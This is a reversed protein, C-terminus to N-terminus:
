AAVNRGTDFNELDPWFDAGAGLTAPGIGPVTRPPRLEQDTKTAAEAMAVADAFANQQRKV